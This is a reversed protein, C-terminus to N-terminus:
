GDENEGKFLMANVAFVDGLQQMLQARALFVPEEAGEFLVCTFGQLVKEESTTSCVTLKSCSLCDGRETM